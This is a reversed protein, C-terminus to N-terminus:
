SQFYHFVAFVTKCGTYAIKNKWICMLWCDSQGRREEGGAALSDNLPGAL